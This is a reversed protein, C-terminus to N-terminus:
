EDKQDELGTKWANSDATVMKSFAAFIPDGDEEDTAETKVKRARLSDLLGNDEAEKKKEPKTEGSDSVLATFIGRVYAEDKSDAVEIKPARSKIAAKMLDIPEMELLADMKKEDSADVGLVGAVRSVLAIQEKMKARSQDKEDGKKKESLQTELAAIRGKMESNEKALNSDFLSRQEDKKEEKMAKEVEDAKSEELEVEIGNIKVKRTKMPEADGDFTHGNSDVRFEATPGVRPSDVIAVHNGRINRQVADFRIEAGSDDVFVGSQLWLDSTYGASLKTKGGEALQIARADTILMDAIAHNGIRQPVSISGVTYQKATEPTLLVRRGDKTPHEITVPCLEFSRLSEADFVEEPPRLQNLVKGDPLRYRFVGTRTIRGQVRLFGDQTRESSRLEALDYAPQAYIVEVGSDASDFRIKPM